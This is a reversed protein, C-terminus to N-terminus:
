IFHLLSKHIGFEPIIQPYVLTFTDKLFFEGFTNNSTQWIFIVHFEFELRCDKKKDM